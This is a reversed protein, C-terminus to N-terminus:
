GDSTVPTLAQARLQTEGQDHPCFSEPSGVTSTPTICIVFKVLVGGSRFPGSYTTSFFSSLYSTLLTSLTNNQNGERKTNFQPDSQSERSAPM